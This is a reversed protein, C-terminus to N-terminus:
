NESAILKLDPRQDALEPRIADANRPEVGGIVDLATRYAVSETSLENSAM